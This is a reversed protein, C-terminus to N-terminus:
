LKLYKKLINIAETATWAEGTAYGQKIVFAKFEKQNKSLKNNGFKMEIYLGHKSFRSVPLFLDFVGSEVGELKLKSAVAIHRAGGNPIHHLWRIEPCIERQRKAWQIVKIQEKSESMDQGMEM